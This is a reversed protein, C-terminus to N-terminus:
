SQTLTYYSGESKQSIVGKEKLSNFTSLTVGCIYGQIGGTTVYGTRAGQRNEPRVIYAGSVELAKIIRQQAKTYETKM